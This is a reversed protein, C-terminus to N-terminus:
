LLKIFCLRFLHFASKVETVHLEDRVVGKLVTFVLTDVGFLSVDGHSKCILIIQLQFEGEILFASLIEGLGIFDAELAVEHDLM